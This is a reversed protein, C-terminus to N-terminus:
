GAESAWGPRGAERGGLARNGELALAMAEAVNARTEEVPMGQPKAGSFEEHCWLARRGHYSDRETRLLVPLGHVFDSAITVM